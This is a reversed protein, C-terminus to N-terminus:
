SSVNFWGCPALEYKPRVFAYPHKGALQSDLSKIDRVEYRITFVRGDRLTMETDREKLAKNLILGNLPDLWDSKFKIKM